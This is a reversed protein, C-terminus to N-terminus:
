ARQKFQIVNEIKPPQLYDAPLNTAWRIFFDPMNTERIIDQFLVVNNENLFEFVRQILKAKEPATDDDLPEKVRMGASAIKQFLRIKQSDSVIGINHLRMIIAQMSFGWREKLQLLSNLDTGYVEKAFSREPAIFAGSFRHAHHEIKKLVRPHQIDETTLYKHLLLHALEHGVDFRRRFANFKKNVLIYPRGDIWASLGDVKSQIPAYLVVIGHNELLLTIDSIPGEGLGFHRRTQQAIEEIDDGSLDDPDTFSLDPLSPKPLEIISEIFSILSSTWGLYSAAQNRMKNTSVSMTRFSVLSEIKSEGERRGLTFFSEPIGLQKSIERLTEPSPRKDGNEFASIAQRSLGALTALESMSLMKHNRAETLRYRQFEAKVTKREM